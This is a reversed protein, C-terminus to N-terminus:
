WVGDRQGFASGGTGFSGVPGSDLQNGSAAVGDAIQGDQIDKVLDAAQKRWVYSQRTTVQEGSKPPFKADYVDARVRLATIQDCLALLNPSAAETVPVLVVSAIQGDLVSSWDTLWATVTATSPEHRTPDWQQEPFAQTIHAVSAYM